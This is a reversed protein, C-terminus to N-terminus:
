FDEKWTYADVENKPNGGLTKGHKIKLTGKMGICEEATMGIDKGEGPHAGVARLFQDVKWFAKETFVLNDYVTAEDNVRMKLEIMSNGAKSTTEKADIVSFPLEEGVPLLPQSGGGQEPKGTTYTPM